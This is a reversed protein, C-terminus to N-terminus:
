VMGGAIGLGVGAMMGAAAFCGVTARAALGSSGSIIFSGGTGTGFQACNSSQINYCAQASLSSCISTASASGLNQATPAVTVGGAPAIVTV